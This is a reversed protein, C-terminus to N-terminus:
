LINHWTLDQLANIEDILHKILTICPIAEKKDKYKTYDTLRVIECSILDLEEANVYIFMSKSNNEWLELLEESEYHAKEFNSSLILKQINDCLKNTEITITNIKEICFLIYLMLLIFMAISFKSRTM